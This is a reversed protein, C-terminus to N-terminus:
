IQHYGKRRLIDDIHGIGHFAKHVGKSPITAISDISMFSVQKIIQYEDKMEPDKGITLTGGVAEVEFFLEIAHFPPKLLECAFLFDKVEIELGTEELFERKLNEPASLGYEMGGGPPSWLFGLEGFGVHKVMLLTNDKPLLGTVRTRLHHGYQKIVEESLM